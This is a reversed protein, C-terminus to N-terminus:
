YIPMPFNQIRGYPSTTIQVFPCKMLGMLAAKVTVNEFYVLFLDVRDNHTKLHMLADDHILMHERIKKM